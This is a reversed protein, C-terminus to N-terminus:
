VLNTDFAGSLRKKPGTKADRFVHTVDTSKHCLLQRARTLQLVSAIWESLDSRIVLLGPGCDRVKRIPSEAFWDRRVNGHPKSTAGDRLLTPGLMKNATSIRTWSESLLHPRSECNPLHVPNSVIKVGM